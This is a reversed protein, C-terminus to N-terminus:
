FRIRTGRSQPMRGFCTPRPHVAAKYTLAHCVERAVRHQQIEEERRHGVAVPNREVAVARQGTQQAHCHWGQDVGAFFQQGVIQDGMLNAEGLDEGDWRGALVM